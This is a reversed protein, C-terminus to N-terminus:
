MPRFELGCVILHSMTGEYCILKMNVPICDNKLEDMSSFNWLNVEMWGDERRKPVCDVDHLNWPSPFRFYVNKVEKNKRHLLNRVKVPCHLGNCKESLKFLLYCCYNTDRSLMHTKIKCKIRFVQQPQLEVVEQFRSDSSAKLHFLKMNSSDYLVEKASLMLHNKRNVKNLSLFKEAEGDDEARNLMEDSNSPPQQVQDKNLNSKLSQQVGETTEFNEHKVDHSVRFELGEVYISGSGCYYHSFSELLTEFKIDKMNSFRYLEITMWEEDRWTAFYAHFTESGMKYTLNVYMFKSSFKRPGCIKFVLHVGYNVGPNLFQSRVKIKINLNSIILMEAVKQFRSQPISRWTHARKNKYVFQKASIMESREGDSRLLFWLKGEQLLIGKTLVDYIDKKRWTFYIEPTKSMQTIEKYDEPLKPEWIECDEQFELAQQLRKAVESVKTKHYYHLCRYAIEQFISLSQSDIQKKIGEFVMEDLNNEKYCKTALLGLSEYGEGGETWALVGCLMEILVVGLSYIDSAEELYGNKKYNPDVYCLSRYANDNVHDIEEREWLKSCLELNSIKAHWDGDLMINSSKIDRHIMQTGKTLGGGHLSELGRAIDVCIKLRKMWTLNTNGLHEDLRGNSAHEYLIIKEGMENCYGVLSVVNENTHEFLVKLEVVFQHNGKDSKSDFRKAVIATCGNANPLKGEYQKWYRGEEICRTASFNQTSLMIDELSVQLNDKSNKQFYFAKELEKLIIEITPRKAQTEALCQYAINSFTDLSDQNLGGNLRFTNEDAERLKPDIIEELTGEHFCRRAISPLGKENNVNYISDYALRGCMIEFLVVGFSYIDSEKKLKGTSMYEPDLYVETGAINSTILTSGQQNAHHLKSLGFDGIKAVWNDDLLINASKIDRHVIMEKDKTSSHLYHLGHAIDLCIQLREAWTLNTMKDHNGFYDDLSGNSVYEYVLIMEPGEVCFGLLSVINRHRCNSLMEIEAFFGQEGQGDVRSSIRKIAVISNRKTLESNNKEEVASLNNGDFHDLKAKYVMGYGGSGICHKASFKNTAFEIDSLQIKLHDLNKGKLRNYSTAEMASTSHEHIKDHRQQLEFARELTKVIQDTSPRQARLEKLCCYATESFINLSDLDMQKFLDHDIMDNLTRDEYHARALRTFYRNDKGQFDAAKRGFLVEFLVVGFSFVDSKTTLGGTKEYAPDMYHLTGNYKSTLHLQHRKARMAFGFGCLKPEWNHDLLIKSSKINGHIVSHNVDADYHIYRLAHAVGVCIKLRQIWTLTSGSLHKDLSENAEYMTVHFAEDPSDNVKFISVINKHKLIKSMLLENIAGNVQLCEQVVVNILEGFHLLQGKYAKAYTDQSILNEDAFNDTASAIEEMPFELSCAYDVLSSFDINQSSSSM